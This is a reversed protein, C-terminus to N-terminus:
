LAEGELYETVLFLTRFKEEVDYLKIINPHELDAMIRGENRFSRIFDSNMAMDHRLMKIAVPTGQDAHVGKYVNSYGGRGVIDTAIYHGITREAVPRRSDFRDAVLETLFDRVDPDVQFLARLNKHTLCWVRMDTEAEAHARRPEGTLVSTMRVIDGEGRHDIPHFQNNKEVILLSTGHQIIFAEDAPEGQSFLREGAAIERTTMDQFLPIDANSFALRIFKTRLNATGEEARVRHYFTCKLCSARKQAFTGQIGGECFTGAVAWCFRGGCTGFNIGDFTRDSAAPCVGHEAVM